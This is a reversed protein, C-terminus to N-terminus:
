IIIQHESAKM